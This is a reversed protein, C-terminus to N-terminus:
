LMQNELNGTNVVNLAFQKANEIQKALLSANYKESM